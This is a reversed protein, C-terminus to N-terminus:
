ACLDGMVKSVLNSQHPELSYEKILGDRMLLTNKCLFAAENPDHTVLLVTKGILSKQALLHMEHRTFCDLASFPEDLLIIDADSMMTRALAVRQRMGVSLEHPRADSYDQLGMETILGKAKHIDHNKHFKQPLLVNEFTTAWPLLSDQQSLYTIDKATGRSDILGALLKLLTSKGCGSRGLLGTWQGKILSLTGPELITKTGYSFPPIKFHLKM